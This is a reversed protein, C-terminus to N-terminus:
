RASTMPTWDPAMRSELGHGVWGHFIYTDNGAGGNITDTGAGGEIHNDYENGNITDDFASGIVNEISVLTDRGASGSVAM